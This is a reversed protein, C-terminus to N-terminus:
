KSTKARESVGPATFDYDFRTVADAKVDITKVSYLKMGITFLQYM